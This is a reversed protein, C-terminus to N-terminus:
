SVQRHEEVAGVRPVLNERGRLAKCLYGWIEQYRRLWVGLFRANLNKWLPFYGDEYLTLLERYMFHDLAGGARLQVKLRRSIDIFNVIGKELADQFLGPTVETISAADAPRRDVQSVRRTKFDLVWWSDHPVNVHYAIKAMYMFKLIWPLSALFRGMYTAFTEYRLTKAKELEDQAALADRHKVALRAIEEAKCEFAAASVLSFGKESDWSAGPLMVVIEPDVPKKQKVYHAALMCPDLSADNKDITERHLFCVNSAFPIAYRARCRRAANVFDRFYDEQKRLTLDKPDPSTYSQPYGQAYSHSRFVFDIPGHRRVIKDLVADEFRCDNLNLLTTGDSHIVIASDDMWGGQYATVSFGGELALTKGHPMSVVNSFGLDTLAEEMSAMPRRPILIRLERRFKRLSPYHFHDFHQHTLYIWDAALMDDNLPVSEPFHWWSRWYASGLIWPDILLRKARHEVLLCAHGIIQFRM